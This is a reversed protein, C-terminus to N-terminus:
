IMQLKICVTIYMNTCLSQCMKKLVGNIYKQESVLLHIKCFDRLKLATAWDSRLNGEGINIRYAQFANM